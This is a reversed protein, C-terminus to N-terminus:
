PPAAPPAADPVILPPAPSSGALVRAWATVTYRRPGRRATRIPAGCRDKSGVAGAGMGPRGFGCSIVEEDASRRFPQHAM